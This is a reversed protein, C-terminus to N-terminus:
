PHGVTYIIIGVHAQSECLVGDTCAASGRRAGVHVSDAGCKCRLLV